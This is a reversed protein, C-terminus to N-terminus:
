DSPSPTMLSAGHFHRGPQWTSLLSTPAQTPRVLSLVQSETWAPSTHGLQPPPLCCSHLSTSPSYVRERRWVSLIPTPCSSPRSPQGAQTPSPGGVCAWSGPLARLRPRTPSDLRPSAGFLHVQAPRVRPPQPQLNGDTRGLVCTPAWGACRVPHCPAPACPQFLLALVSGMPALTNQTGSSSAPACLPLTVSRQLPLLPAPHTDRM